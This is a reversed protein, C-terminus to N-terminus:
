KSLAMLCSSGLMESSSDTRKLQKMIVSFIMSRKVLLCEVEECHMELDLNTQPIQIFEEIKIHTSSPKKLDMVSFVLLFLMWIDFDRAAVESFFQVVETDTRQDQMHLILFLVKRNSFYHM